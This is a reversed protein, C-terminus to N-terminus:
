LEELSCNFWFQIIINKFAIEFKKKVGQFPLRDMQYWLFKLWKVNMYQIFM